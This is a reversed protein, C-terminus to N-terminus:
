RPSHIQIWYSGTGLCPFMSCNCSSRNPFLDGIRDEDRIGLTLQQGHAPVATDRELKEKIERLTTQSSVSYSFIETACNELDVCFLQGPSVSGMDLRIVDVDVNMFVRQVTLVSSQIIELSYCSQVTGHNNFGQYVVTDKFLINFDYFAPLITKLYSAVNEMTTTLTMPFEVSPMGDSFQITVTYTDEARDQVTSPIAVFELKQEWWDLYDVSNSDQREVSVRGEWVSKPSSNPVISFIQGETFFVTSESESGSGTYRQIGGFEVCKSKSSMKVDFLDMSDSPKMQQIIRTTIESPTLIENSELNFVEDRSTSSSDFPNVQELYRISYSVPM